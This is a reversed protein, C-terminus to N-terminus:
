GASEQRLAVAFVLEFYHYYYLIFNYLCVNSPSQELHSNLRRKYVIGMCFLHSVWNGRM